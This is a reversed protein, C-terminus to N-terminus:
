SICISFFRRGFETLEIRYPLTKIEDESSDKTASFAKYLFHENFEDYNHNLEVVNNNKIIIGLRILNDLSATLKIHELLDFEKDLEKFFFLYQTCPTIKNNRDIMQLIALPYTNHYKFMNLVKADLPSIQKIIETYSPHVNDIKSKDCAAALLSSYMDRYYEEEYFYKSSEIAPGVINMPPEKLNEKNVNSIKNNLEQKFEDIYKKQLLKQKEGWCGLWGMVGDVMLGLNNGISISSPRIIDEAINKASEATVKAVEKSLNNEFENM